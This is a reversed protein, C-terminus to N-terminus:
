RAARRARWDKTYAAREAAHDRSYRRWSELRRLRRDEEVSPQPWEGLPSVRQGRKGAPLPMYIDALTM